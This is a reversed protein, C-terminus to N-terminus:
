VPFRRERFEALNRIMDRMEEATVTEVFLVLRRLMEGFELQQSTVIGSHHRGANWWALYHPVFDQANCTVLVRSQSAAYELQAVDDLSANGVEWAGIANHGRARLQEALRYSIDQDLYLKVRHEAEDGM